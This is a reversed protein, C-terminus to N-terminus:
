ESKTSRLPLVCRRIHICNFPLHNLMRPQTYQRHTYNQASKVYGHIRRHTNHKSIQISTICFNRPADVINKFHIYFRNEDPHACIQDWNISAFQPTHYLEELTTTEWIIFHTNRNYQWSSPHGYTIIVNKKREDDNSSYDNVVSVIDEDQLTNQIQVYITTDVDVRLCPDDVKLIEKVSTDEEVYMMVTVTIGHESKLRRHIEAISVTNNSDFGLRIIDTPTHLIM